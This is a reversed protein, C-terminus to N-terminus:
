REAAASREAAAPRPDRGALLDSALVAGFPEWAPQRGPNIWVADFDTREALHAFLEQGSASQVDANAFRPEQTLFHRLAPGATFLCVTKRGGYCEASPLGDRALFLWEHALLLAADGASRDVLLAEVDQADAQERLADLMGNGDAMTLGLAQPLGLDFAVGQVDAPLHNLLHRAGMPLMAYPQGYPGAAQHMAAVYATQDITWLLPHADESVPVYWSEHAIIARYLEEEAVAGDKYDLLARVVPAPVDDDAVARGPTAPEGPDAAPDSRALEVLLLELIGLNFAAPEAPGLYNFVIGTVDEPVLAPFLQEGSVEVAKLPATPFSTRLGELGVALTDHHTFLPLFQGGDDHPVTIRVYGAASEIALMQYRPFRAVLALDGPEEAGRSLRRWAAEVELAEALRNLATFELSPIVLSHPSGPDVVVSTVGALDAAFVEWGTPNTYALGDSGYAQGTFTELTDPESFIALRVGGAPDAILNAQPLTFRAFPDIGSDPREPLLWNQYGLLRRWLRDQDLTQARWADLAQIVDNM